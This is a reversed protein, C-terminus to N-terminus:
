GGFFVLRLGLGNSTMGIDLGPGNLGSHKQGSNYLNAANKAHKTYASSFPISIVILGAGIGALAWNPDGGAIATGLPWGVLFGGIFGFVTGAAHNTKAIEMEKRAEPMPATMDLLQRPTLNKGKYRFVTGFAKRVEITDATNQSTASFVTSFLLVGLLTKKLNM